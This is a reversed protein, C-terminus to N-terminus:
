LRQIPISGIGLRIAGILDNHKGTYVRRHCRDAGELKRKPNLRAIGTVLRGKDDTHHGVGGVHACEHSYAVGDLHCTGVPTLHLHRQRAIAAGALIHGDTGVTCGTQIPRGRDVVEREALNLATRRHLVQSHRGAAGVFDRNGPGGLASRATPLHRYVSHHTANGGVGRIGEGVQGGVRGVRDRHHRLAASFLTCRGGKLDAGNGLRNGRQGVATVELSRRGNHHDVSLLGVLPHRPATGVGGRSSLIRQEDM